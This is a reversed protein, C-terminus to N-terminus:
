FSQIAELLHKSIDDLLRNMGLPDYSYWLAPDVVYAQDNKVAKLSSILPNQFFYAASKDSVIFLIDTDFKDIAEISFPAWKNQETFISKLPVGLNNLLQFYNAYKQEIWFNSGDSHIVSTEKDQLPKGVSEQLAKVRKQYQALIEAAKEEQGVVQAVSRFNEKFSAKIKEYERLVTPAIASLQEYNKEDHVDLSLM